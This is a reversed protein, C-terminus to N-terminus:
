ITIPLSFEVDQVRGEVKTLPSPLLERAVMVYEPNITDLDEIRIGDFDVQAAGGGTAVVEVEFATINTWSPTGTAVATSKAISVIRYGTTTPSSLTFTFYNAGDTKFRVRIASVNANNNYFAVVFSDAGSNGAFDSFMDTLTSTVTASTAPAIRLSDEGIRTNTSAFTGASWTESNSDFSTLLRSTYEGAASNTTQSWLGVEYINGAFEQPISAKFILKNNVFDYSKLIIDARGVEFQLSTDNTDEAKGGLGIAISKAIDSVQGAMFRKIHTKGQVTLM